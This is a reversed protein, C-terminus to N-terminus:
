EAALELQTVVSEWRAQETAEFIQRLVLLLVNVEGVVYGPKCSLSFEELLLYYFGQQCDELPTSPVLSWLRHYQNSLELIELSETEECRYSEQKASHIDLCVSSVEENRYDQCRAKSLGLLFWM